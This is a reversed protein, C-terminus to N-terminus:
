RCCAARELLTVGLRSLFTLDVQTFNKKEFCRFVDLSVMNERFQAMM